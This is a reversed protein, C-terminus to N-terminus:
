GGCRRPYSPEIRGQGVRRVQSSLFFALAAAAAAQAEPTTVEPVLDYKAVEHPVSGNAFVCYQAHSM